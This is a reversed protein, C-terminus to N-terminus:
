MCYVSKYFQDHKITTDFTPTLNGPNPYRMGHIIDKVEQMENIDSLDFTGHLIKNGHTNNDFPGIKAGIPGSVLPSSAAQRYHM